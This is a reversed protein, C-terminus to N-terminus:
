SPRFCIMKLFDYLYIEHFNNAPFAIPYRSENQWWKPPATMIPFTDWMYSSRSLPGFTVIFDNLCHFKSSRATGERPTTFCLSRPISLPYAFHSPSPVSSSKQTPHVKLPGSISNSPISDTDEFQKFINWIKAYFFRWSIGMFDFWCIEGLDLSVNLESVEFAVSFRGSSWRAIFNWLGCVM